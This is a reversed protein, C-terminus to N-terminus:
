DGVYLDMANSLLLPMGPGLHLAQTYLAEGCLAPVNPIPIDYTVTPGVGIPLFLVESGLPNVLIVSTTLPLTFSAAERYGYVVGFPHGTVTLDVSLQALGGIPGAIATYSDPNPPTRRALAGFAPGFSGDARVNQAFIRGADLWVYAADGFPMGIFPVTPEIDNDLPAQDSLSPAVLTAQGNDVVRVVSSESATLTTALIEVGGNRAVLRLGPEFVGPFPLLNGVALPGGGFALTNDTLFAQVALQPPGTACSALAAIWLRGTSADRGMDFAVDPLFLPCSMSSVVLGQDPPVDNWITSGDAMVRQLRVEAFSKKYAVYCGGTGDAVARTELPQNLPVQVIRGEPGWPLSGDFAVKTVRLGVPLGLLTLQETYELVLFVGGDSSPVMAVLEQEYSTSDDITTVGLLNGTVDLRAVRLQGLFNPVPQSGGEYEVVFIQGDQTIAHPARGTREPAISDAFPTVSFITEQSGDLRVRRLNVDTGFGNNAVFKVLASSGDTTLSFESVQLGIAPSVGTAPYREEGNPELCQVRLTTSGNTETWGVYLYGAETRVVQLNEKEIASGPSFEPNVATTKSWPALSTSALLLSAASALLAPRNM